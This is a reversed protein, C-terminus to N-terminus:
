NRRMYNKAFKLAQAKTKISHRRIKGNTFGGVRVQWENPSNDIFVSELRLRNGNKENYYHVLYTEDLTKKWDKLSM